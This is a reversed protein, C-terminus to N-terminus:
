APPVDYQSRAKGFRASIYCTHSCYKRNTDYSVHEVGCNACIFSKAGKKNVMERNQNWWRLRCTDSCFQRPKQKLKLLLQGGCVKCIGAANDDQQVAGLKLNNRSCFSKVTGEPLNLKVAIQSYSAGSLRLRRISSKETSNM